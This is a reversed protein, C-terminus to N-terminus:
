MVGSFSQECGKISDNWVCHLKCADKTVLTSSKLM